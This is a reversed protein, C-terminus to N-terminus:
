VELVGTGPISGSISLSLFQLLLSHAAEPLLQVAQGQLHICGLAEFCSYGTPMSYRGQISLNKYNSKNLNINCTM